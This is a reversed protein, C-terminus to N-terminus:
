FHSRSPRVPRSSLAVFARSAVAVCGAGSVCPPARCARRPGARGGPRAASRCRGPRASSRPRSRSARRRRRRRAVIADVRLDRAPPRRREALPKRPRQREDAADGEVLECVDRDVGGRVAADPLGDVTARQVYSKALTPMGTLTIAFDHTVRLRVAASRPRPDSRRTGPGRSDRHLTGAVYPAASAGADHRLSLREGAAAFVVETSVLLEAAPALAGTDRGGDRRAGRSRRPTTSRFTSRPLACAGLREALERRHREARGAEVRECLRDGGMVGPIAGGRGRVPDPARGHPLLERGRCASKREGLGRTSRRSTRERCGSSGIVVGVGRASRRSCTGKVVAASTYDVLVDVPVADLAEGGVLVRRRPARCARSRARPGAGREGGGRGRQGDLGTIGAVCVRIPEM